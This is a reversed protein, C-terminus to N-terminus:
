FKPNQPKPASTASYGSNTVPTVVVPRAKFDLTFIINGNVQFPVVSQTTAAGITAEAGNNITWSNGSQVLNVNPTTFAGPGALSTLTVSTDFTIVPALFITIVEGGIADSVSSVSFGSNIVTNVKRASAAFDFTFISIGNIQFGIDGYNAIDGLIGQASMKQPAIEWANAEDLWFLQDPTLTIFAGSDNILIMIQFDTNNQFTVIPPSCYAIIQRLIGGPGTWDPVPVMGFSCQGPEQWACAYPSTMGIASASCVTSNQLQGQNINAYCNTINSGISDTIDGLANYYNNILTADAPCAVIQNTLATFVPNTATIFSNYFNSQNFNNQMDVNFCGNVTRNLEMLLTNIATVVASLTATAQPCSTTPM